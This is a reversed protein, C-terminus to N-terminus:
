MKESPKDLLFVKYEIWIYKRDVLPFHLSSMDRIGLLVQSLEVIAQAQERSDNLVTGYLYGKKIDAVAEEIGDIGVVPIWKEDEPDIRGNLNTDNFWGQKRMQKIAGIAMADNNSMITEIQDGYEILIHEMKEFAQDRNWNAVKILLIDLYFGNVKFARVLETTRLEADQHGQEGKLIVAQIRNDGNKDFENLNNPDNGFLTMVLEAQLQGSQEARAGVYYSKEWLNLDALLPERNFFIVPIDENKLRRIIPYVGLRDVPNIILLDSKEDIMEEINENQLIQSNKANYSSINFFGESLIEIQKTFTNIYPDNMNYIAMGVEKANRQCSIFNLLIIISILFIISKKKMSEGKIFM